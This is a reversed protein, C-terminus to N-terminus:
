YTNNYSLIPLARFKMGPTDCGPKERSTFQKGTKCTLQSSGRNLAAPDSCKVEVVTGPDAPFKVTTVIDTWM